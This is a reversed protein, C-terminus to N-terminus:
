EVPTESIGRIVQELADLIDAVLTGLEPSLAIGAAGLGAVSLTIMTARHKKFLEKM